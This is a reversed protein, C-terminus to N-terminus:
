TITLTESSESICTYAQWYMSPLVFPPITIPTNWTFKVVMISGTAQPVLVRMAGYTTSDVTIITEAGDITLTIDDPSLGTSILDWEVIGVLKTLGLTDITMTMSTTAQVLVFSTILPIAPDLIWSILSVTFSGTSFYQHSDVAGISASISIREKSNNPNSGGLKYRGQALPFAKENGDEDKHKSAFFVRWVGPSTLLVSTIEFSNRCKGGRVCSEIRIFDNGMVSRIHVVICPVPKLVRNVVAGLAKNRAMQARAWPIWQKARGKDGQLILM